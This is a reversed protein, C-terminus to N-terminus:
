LPTGGSSQTYIDMVQIFYILITSSGLTDTVGDSLNCSNGIARFSSESINAVMIEIGAVTNNLGEIKSNHISPLVIVRIGACGELFNRSDGDM